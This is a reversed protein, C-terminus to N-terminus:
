QVRNGEADYRIRKAQGSESAARKAEPASSGSDLAKQEAELARAKKAYGERMIAFVRKMGERTTAGGGAAERLVEMDKDSITGTLQEAANLVEKSLRTDLESAAASDVGIGGYGLTMNEVLRDTWNLPGSGPGVFAKNALDILSEVNQLSSQASMLEDGVNMQRDVTAKAEAQSRAVAGATEAKDAMNIQTQPRTKIRTLVEQFEPTGPEYGAEKLERVLSPAQEPAEYIPKGDSPDVLANGVVVPKAPKAAERQAELFNGIDLQAELRKAPDPIQDIYSKVLERQRAKEEMERRQAAIEDYYKRKQLANTEMDQRLQAMKLMHDREAEGQQQAMQMGSLAGQAGYGLAQGTSQGRGASGLMGLGAGLLAYKWADSTM